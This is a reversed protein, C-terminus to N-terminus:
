EGKVKEGESKRVKERVKGGESNRRWKDSM